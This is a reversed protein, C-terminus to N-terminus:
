DELNTSGQNDDGGEEPEDGLKMTAKDNLALKEAKCAEAQAESTYYHTTLLKRMLYFRIEPGSIM